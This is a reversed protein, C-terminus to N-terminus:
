HPHGGGQLTQIVLDAVKDPHHGNNDLARRLQQAIQGLAIVHDLLQPLLTLPNCEFSTSNSAQRFSTGLPNSISTFGLASISDTLQAFDPKTGIGHGIAAISLGLVAAITSLVYSNPLSYCVLVPVAIM